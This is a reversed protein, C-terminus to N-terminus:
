ELTLVFEWGEKQDKEDENCSGGERERERKRAIRRERTYCDSFGCYRKGRAPSARGITATERAGRRQEWRSLLLSVCTPIVTIEGLRCAPWTGRNRRSASGYSSASISTPAPSFRRSRTATCSCTPESYSRPASHWRRTETSSRFASARALRRWRTQLLSEVGMTWVNRGRRRM